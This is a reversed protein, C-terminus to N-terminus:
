GTVLHKARNRRKNSAVTTLTNAVATIADEVRVCKTDKGSTCKGKFRSSQIEKKICARSGGLVELRDTVDSTSKFRMLANKSLVPRIRDQPARM